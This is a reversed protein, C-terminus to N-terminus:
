VETSSKAPSTSSSLFKKHCDCQCCFPPKNEETFQFKSPSPMLRSQSVSNLKLFVSKRGLTNDLRAIGLENLKLSSLSAQLENEGENEEQNEKYIAVLRYLQLFLIIANKCTFFMTVFTRVNFKIVATLRLGFFPGDEFILTVLISWIESELFDFTKCKCIPLCDLPHRDSNISIMNSIISKERTDDSADEELLEDLM